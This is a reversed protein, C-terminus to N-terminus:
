ALLLTDFVPPMEKSDFNVVGKHKEGGREIYYAVRGDGFFELDAYLGPENWYLGARGSPHLMPEVLEGQETTLLCAFSAAQKISAPIPARAGEGDWDAQLASWGRVEGILKELSTTERVADPNADPEGGSIVV